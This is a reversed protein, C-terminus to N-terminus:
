VCSTCRQHTSLASWASNTEYRMGRRGHRELLKDCVAAVNLKNMFIAHGDHVRVDLAEGDM